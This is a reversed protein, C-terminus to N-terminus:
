LVESQIQNEKQKRGNGQKSKSIKEISNNFDEYEVKCNELWSFKTSHM